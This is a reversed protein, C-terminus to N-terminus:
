YTFLVLRALMASAYRISIKYKPNIEKIKQPIRILGWEDFGVMVVLKPMQGKLINTAGELTECVGILFNIKIISVKQNGLLDDLKYVKLKGKRGKKISSSEEDECFDILTNENWCGCEYVQINKLNKQAIYQNLKSVSRSELEIAYIYAYKDKVTLFEKITDGDYAGIDVIRESDSINFFPNKFYSVEEKYTPLIYHFDETLKCNLFAVMCEQSLRDELCDYTAYYEKRHTYVFEYTLHKWREYCISREYKKM